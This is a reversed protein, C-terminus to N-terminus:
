KSDFMQNNSKNPTIFLFHPLLSFFTNGNNDVIERQQLLNSFIILFFHDSVGKKASMFYKNGKNRMKSHFQFFLLQKIRLFSYTSASIVPDDYGLSDKQDFL